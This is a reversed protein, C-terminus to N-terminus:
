HPATTAPSSSRKMVIGKDAVPQANNGNVPLAVNPTSRCPPHPTWRLAWKRGPGARRSGFQGDFRVLHPSEVAVFGGPGTALGGAGARGLWARWRHGRSARPLSMSGTVCCAPGRRPRDLPPHPSGPRLTLSCQLELPAGKAVRSTFPPIMAASCFLAGDGKM